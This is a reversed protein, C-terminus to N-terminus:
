GSKMPKIKILNDHALDAIAHAVNPLIKILWSLLHDVQFVQLRLTYLRALLM